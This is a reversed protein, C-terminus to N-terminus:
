IGFHRNYLLGVEIYYGHGYSTLNVILVPLLVPQLNFMNPDYTTVFTVPTTLM